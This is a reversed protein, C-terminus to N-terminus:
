CVLWSAGRLFFQYQISCRSLVFSHQVGLWRDNGALWFFPVELFVLLPQIGNTLHVGDATIGQGLALHRACSFMYFSDDLLLRSAHNLEGRFGLIVRTLFTFCTLFWVFRRERPTFYTM